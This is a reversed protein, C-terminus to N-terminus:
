IGRGPKRRRATGLTPRVFYQNIFAANTVLTAPPTPRTSVIPTWLLAGAMLPNSLAGALTAYATLGTANIVNADTAPTTFTNPIAPMTVRGRGHRGKLDCYRALTAGTEIPLNTAGATGIVGPALVSFQTPTKGFHLEQASYSVLTSLPSLCALYKTEIATQFSALLSVLDASSCPSSLGSLYDFITQCRVSNTLTEVVIRALSTTVVGAPPSAGM